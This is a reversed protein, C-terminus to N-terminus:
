SRFILKSRKHTQAAADYIVFELPKLSDIEAAPVRTKRALYKVDDASSQRFIVFCSANGLATKDSEAWRQSIALVIAGRKLGRRLLLGWHTPAKAPNTVDALEEAICVTAGHRDVAAFMCQCVFDFATQMPIMPGPVFAHRGAGPQMAAAAFTSANTHRTWGPLKAWQDEPDWALARTASGYHKVAYATKGSRSAGALVILRGDATKM